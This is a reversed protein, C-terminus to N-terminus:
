RGGGEGEARTQACAPCPGFESCSCTPVDGAAPRANAAANALWWYDHLLSRCLACLAGHATRLGCEQCDADTLTPTVVVDANRASVCTPCVGEPLPEGPEIKIPAEPVVALEGCGTPTLTGPRPSAMLWSPVAFLHRVDAAATAYPSYPNPEVRTM